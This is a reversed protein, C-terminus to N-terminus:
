ALGQCAKLWAEGLTSGIRRLGEPLSQRTELWAKAIWWDLEHRLELDLGFDFLEQGCEYGLKYVPVPEHKFEFAQTCKKCVLEIEQDASLTFPSSFGKSIHVAM